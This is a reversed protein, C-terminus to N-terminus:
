KGEVAAVLAAYARETAGVLANVKYTPIDAGHNRYAEEAAVYARAADAVAENADLADAAARLDVVLAARQEYDSEEVTAGWLLLRMQLRAALDSTNSPTNM